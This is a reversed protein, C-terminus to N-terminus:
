GAVNLLLLGALASVVLTPLMGIKFRLMAVIATMTLLAARWDLSSPRPLEGAAGLLNIPQMERFLVHMALFVALNLIVGVVAATIASLAATLDQNGRLKEIYPAGLFIWLFCPAFTVWSTLLAGLCGALLPDSWGAHRFAALFGVFQLVLVLPGPTTEALGLGDLMEGPVLWHYSSVAAQAVYSLVAYAGGFTVVAMGSFFGSIEKWVSNTGPVLHLLIVPGLWLPLWIALVRFARRASPRTHDLGGTAALGAVLNDGEAAASEKVTSSFLAPALRHGLWGLMGAVLIVWPFPIHWIFLALFAALALCKRSHDLLARRGIRLLAEIVVALVAAKIGFFLMFVVPTTHLYAYLISLGLMVLAGPLVFLWGAILGGIGRHLLWGIYIALQQAEPGPLLMCYNLAHMFRQEGIWRREQVLMRHMTAIQGAPGGFSLLGIKLWVLFAQQLSPLAIVPPLQTHAPRQSDPGPM